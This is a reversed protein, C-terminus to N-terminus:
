FFAGHRHSSHHSSSYSFSLYNSLHCGLEESFPPQEATTHMTTNLTYCCTHACLSKAFMYVRSFYSGFSQQRSVSNLHLLTLSNRLYTLLFSYDCSGHAFSCDEASTTASRLEICSPFAPSKSKSSSSSRSTEFERSLTKGFPPHHIPSRGLSLGDNLVHYLPTM